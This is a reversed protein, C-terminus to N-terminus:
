FEVTDGVYYMRKEPSMGAPNEYHPSEVNAKPAYRSPTLDHQGYPFEYGQEATVATFKSGVDDNWNRTHVFTPDNGNAKGPTDQLGSFISDDETGEYNFAGRDNGSKEPSDNLSSSDVDTMGDLGHHKMDLDNEDDFFEAYPSISPSEKRKKATRAAVLAVAIVGLIGLVIFTIGVPSIIVNENSSTDGQDGENVGSAGSDDYNGGSNDILTLGGQDPTGSIYRAGKVGVVSLEDDGSDEVFPCPDDVNMATLLTKLAKSSSEFTSSKPNDERLYLTMLGQIFYCNSNSPTEPNSQTYYECARETIIDQPAADVGDVILRRRSGSVSISEIELRRVVEEDGCNILEQGVLRAMSKEMEDRISEVNSADNEGLVMEYEFNVAAPIDTAYVGGSELTECGPSTQSQDGMNTDLMLPDFGNEVEFLDDLGDGDTDSALPNTGYIMVEDYDNLGDGDSDPNNPDSGVTNVEMGDTLGDGDSDPNNVDTGLELEM